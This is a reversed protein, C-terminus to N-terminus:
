EHMDSYSKRQQLINEDHMAECLRCYQYESTSVDYYKKWWFYKVYEYPNKSLYNLYDALDKVTAFDQANIFSKPPVYHTYNVAGLVVPIIPHEMTKFLKETVYDECM